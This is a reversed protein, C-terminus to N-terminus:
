TRCNLDMWCACGIHTGRSLSVAQPSYQDTTSGIGLQGNANSGWCMLRGGTVLACTHSGGASIATAALGPTHKKCTRPLHGIIKLEPIQQYHAHMGLSLIHDNLPSPTEKELFYVSRADPYIQASGLLKVDANKTLTCMTHQVYAGATTPCACRICCGLQQKQIPRRDQYSEHCTYLHAGKPRRQHFRMHALPNQLTIYERDYFYITRTNGSM